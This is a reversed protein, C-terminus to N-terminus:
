GNAAPLVLTFTSGAGVSSAVTLDGGIERAQDRSIALGLGVGENVRTLMTDLQVFPQVISELPNTSDSRL